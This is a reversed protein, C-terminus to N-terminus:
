VSNAVALYQNTTGVSKAGMLIVIKNEDGFKNGESTASAPNMQLNAMSTNKPECLLESFEM